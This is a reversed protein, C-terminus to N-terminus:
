RIVSYVPVVVSAYRATSIMYRYHENAFYPVILFIAPTLVERSDLWGSRAGVVILASFAM